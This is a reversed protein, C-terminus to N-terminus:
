NSFPLLDLIIDLTENTKPMKLHDFSYKLGEWTNRETRNMAVPIILGLSVKETVNPRQEYCPQM